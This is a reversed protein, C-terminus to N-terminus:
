IEAIISYSGRRLDSDHVIFYNRPMLDIMSVKENTLGGKNIQKRWIYLDTRSQAHQFREKVSTFALHRKEGSKWYNVAKRKYDYWALKTM